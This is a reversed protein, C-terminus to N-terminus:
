DSLYYEVTSVVRVRKIHPNNKDRAAISFQGQSARKIKGLSSQSDEAFKKAVERAKTTAEEIMEPKVENLRTFLYETQSQYNNGTFVIGHKGLESLSSMVHRVVDINASYVTVTQLASYRFEAQNNSGYQQASKDTIAPSVLTIEEESIGNKNLYKFIMESQLDVDHYLDTLSNDALSFTIPWIVIDAKYEKESLGKVTVSRDYLKYQIAASSLFYGLAALGLFIFLGLLGAGTKNNEQM